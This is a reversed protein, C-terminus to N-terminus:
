MPEHSTKDDTQDVLETEENYIPSSDQTITIKVAEAQQIGLLALTSILITLYKM